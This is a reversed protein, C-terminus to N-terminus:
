IQPLGRKEAVNLALKLEPQSTCEMIIADRELDTFFKSPIYKDRSSNPAPFISNPCAILVVRKHENSSLVSLVHSQASMARRLTQCAFHHCVHSVQLWKYYVLEESSESYAVVYSQWRSSSLLVIISGYSIETFIPLELLLYRKWM